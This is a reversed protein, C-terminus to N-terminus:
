SLPAAGAAARVSAVVEENSAGPGLVAAV